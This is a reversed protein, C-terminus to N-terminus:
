MEWDLTGKIRLCKCVIVLSVSGRITAEGEFKEPGVTKHSFGEVINRFLRLANAPRLFNIDLDIEVERDAGDIILYDRGKDFGKTGWEYLGIYGDNEIETTVEVEAMVAALEDLIADVEQDGARDDAVVGRRPNRNLGYVITPVGNRGAIRRTEFVSIGETKKATATM